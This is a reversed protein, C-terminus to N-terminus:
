PAGAPRPSAAARSRALEAAAEDTRGARRAVDALLLWARSRNPYADVVARLAREAEADQGNALLAAALTEVVAPTQPARKEAEVAFHLARPADHTHLAEEALMVRPVVNDDDVAAAHEFLTRTTSWTSIQDVTRPACALAAVFLALPARPHLRRLALAAALFLFVHPLYTYRDNMASEGVAVLGLVPVLMGVFCLWGALVGFSTAVNSSPVRERVRLAFAAAGLTVVVVILAACAVTLAPWGEQHTAYSVALDGPWATKELYRAISVLANEVRASLEFRAEDVIAGRQARLTIFSSAIALALLPLKDLVVAPGRRGRMGVDVVLLVFPATVLMPKSLLGLALATFALARRDRLWLALMVLFFFAALVDKREAVWAVSEVRLPHLAFLAAAGLSVAVDDVLLDLAVFVLAANLAHLVVNTMHFGLPAAGFLSADLALSLWTLPHWNTMDFSTFAYRVADLSLGRAIVDNAFVYGGDDYDVFGLAGCPLFVVVVVAFVAAAVGVRRKLRRRDEPEVAEV